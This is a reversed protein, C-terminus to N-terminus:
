GRSCCTVQRKMAKFCLVVCDTWLNRVWCIRASVRNTLRTLIFENRITYKIDCDNTLKNKNSYQM